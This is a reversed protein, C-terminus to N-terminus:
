TFGVARRGGNGRGRFFLSAAVFAGVCLGNPKAQAVPRKNENTQKETEKEM